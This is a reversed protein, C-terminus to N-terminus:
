KSSKDNDKILKALVDINKEYMSGHAEKKFVEFWKKALPVENSQASYAVLNNVSETKATKNKYIPLYKTLFLDAEKIKKQNLLAYIYEKFVNDNFMKTDIGEKSYKEGNKFDGLANHAFSLEFFLKPSRYKGAYVKQLIPLASQPLNGGSISSARNVEEEDTRKGGSYYIKVWSPEDPLGFKKLLDKSLIASKFALNGIRVKMASTKSNENEKYILKGNEESVTGLDHYTYGAMDDLYIYGLAYSKDSVKKPLIVYNKEADPVNTEFKLDSLQQSFLFGCLPLTVLLAYKKM